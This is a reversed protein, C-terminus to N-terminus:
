VRPKKTLYAESWKFLHHDKLVKVFFTTSPECSEASM